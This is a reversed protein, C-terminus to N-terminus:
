RKVEEICVEQWRILKQGGGTRGAIDSCFGVFKGYADFRGGKMLTMKLGYKFFAISKKL